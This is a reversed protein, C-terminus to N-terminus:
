VLALPKRYARQTKGKSAWAVGVPLTFDAQHLGKRPGRGDRRGFRERVRQPQLHALSCNRPATEQSQMRTARTSLEVASTGAEDCSVYM